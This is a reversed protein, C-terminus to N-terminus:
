RIINTTNCQSDSKNIWIFELIIFHKIKDWQAELAQLLHFAKSM